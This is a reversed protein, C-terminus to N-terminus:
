LSGGAQAVVALGAWCVMLCAFEGRETPPQFLALMIVLGALRKWQLIRVDLTSNLENLEQFRCM